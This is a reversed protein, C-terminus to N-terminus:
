TWSMDYGWSYSGISNNVNNTGDTLITQVDILVYGNPLDALPVEVILEIFHKLGTRCNFGSYPIDYTKGTERIFMKLVGQATSSGEYIDIILNTMQFYAMDGSKFVVSDGNPITPHDQALNISGQVRLVPITGGDSSGDGYKAYTDNFYADRIGDQIKLSLGEPFVTTSTTKPALYAFIINKPTILVNETDLNSTDMEAIIETDGAAIAQGITKTSQVLRAEPYSLSPMQTGIVLTLHMNMISGAVTAKYESLKIDADANLILKARFQFSKERGGSVVPRTGGNNNYFIVAGIAPKADHNYGRFDGLRYPTATGGSPPTWQGWKGWNDALAQSAPLLGATVLAPNIGWNLTNKPISDDTGSVGYIGTVQPYRYPKFRSWKNINPHSCLTGVDRSNTGLTQGVLNTSINKNSLAM